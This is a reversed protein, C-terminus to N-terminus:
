YKKCEELISRASMYIAFLEYKTLLLMVYSIKRLDCIGAEEKSVM